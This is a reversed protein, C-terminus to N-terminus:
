DNKETLSLIIKQFSSTADDLPNTEKFDSKKIEENALKIRVAMALRKQYDDTYKDHIFPKQLLKLINIAIELHSKEIKVKPKEIDPYIDDSFHLLYLIIKGCDESLGVLYENNGLITKGIGILRTAKLANKITELSVEYNEDAKLYYAKSIMFLKIENKKVFEQIHIQNEYDNKLIALEEDSFVLFQNKEYEYGKIIDDALVELEGSNLAMKRYQIKSM